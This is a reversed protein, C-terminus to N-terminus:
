TPDPSTGPDARVLLEGESDFWWLGEYSIRLCKGEPNCAWLEMLTCRDAFTMSPLDVRM